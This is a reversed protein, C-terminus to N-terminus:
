SPLEQLRLAHPRRATKWALLMDQWRRSQRPAGYELLRRWGLACLIPIHRQQAHATAPLARVAAAFCGAGRERLQRLYARLRESRDPLALDDDEIGAALLEDIAFPVRGYRHQLAFGSIARSLYEGIAYAHTSAEIGTLARTNHLWWSRAEGCRRPM